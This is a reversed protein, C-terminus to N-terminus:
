YPPKTLSMDDGCLVFFFVAMICLATHVDHNSNGELLAVEDAVSRTVRDGAKEM